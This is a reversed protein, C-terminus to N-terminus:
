LGDGELILKGKRVRLTCIAEADHGYYDGQAYVIELYPGEEDEKAYIRKLGYARDIMDELEKNGLRMTVEIYSPAEDGQDHYEFELKEETGDGDADWDIWEWKKHTLEFDGSEDSGSDAPESDVPEAPEAQPEPEAPETPKKQDNGCGILTLVLIVSLVIILICSISKKMAM